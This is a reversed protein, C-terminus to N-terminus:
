LWPIKVGLFVETTISFTVYMLVLKQTLTEQLNSFLAVSLKLTACKTNLMGLAAKYKSMFPFGDRVDSLINSKTSIIIDLNPFLNIKTTM